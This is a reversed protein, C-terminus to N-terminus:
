GQEFGEEVLQDLVSVSMNKVGEQKFKEKLQNSLERTFYKGSTAMYYMDDLWEQLVEPEDFRPKLLEFIEMLIKVNDKSFAAQLVMFFACLLIDQPMEKKGLPTVDFLLAKMNLTFQEFGKIVRVLEILETPSTFREGGHHFIIPIVMPFFFSELRKEKKALKWEKDWIRVVYKILQFVTWKDNETKLEILIYIVISEDSNKLPVSYVVDAYLKKLDNDIYSEKDVQLNEIDLTEQLDQPLVHQLFKRAKKLDELHEKCFSDHQYKKKFDDLAKSIFTQKSASRFNKKAPVKSKQTTRTNKTQREKSM